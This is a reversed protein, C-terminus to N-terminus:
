GRRSGAFAGGLLVLIASVLLKYYFGIECQLDIASGKESFLSLSPRPMSPPCFIHTGAATLPMGRSWKSDSPLPRYRSDVSSAANGPNGTRSFKLKPCTPSCALAACVLNPARGLGPCFGRAVNRNRRTTLEIDPTLGGHWVVAIRLRGCVRYLDLRAAIPPM